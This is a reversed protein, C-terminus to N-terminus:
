HFSHGGFVDVQEGLAITAHAFQQAALAGVQRFHGAHTHGHRAAEGDAGFGAGLIIGIVPGDIRLNFTLNHFIDGLQLFNGALLEAGHGVRQQNGDAGAGPGGHGTHHIGDQVQTEVVLHHLGEGLLGLVGPEGVIGVATKDLHVGVDDHLHALLIKFLEDVLHLLLAADGLIGLQRGLVQLFQGLHELGLVAGLQALLEGLVGLLLKHAGDLGHETGPVVGAGDVVAAHVVNGGGPAGSDVDLLHDEAVHAVGGTGANGKGAVGGGALLLEKTLEQHVGLAFVHHGTDTGGLGDILQLVDHRLDIVLKYVDAVLQLVMVAVHLVHLEGNLVLLEKHELGTVALAGGGGSQFNGAVQHVLAHDGLLFGHGHNVGLAQIGQQVGGEGLFLQLTGFGDALAKGGRGASSGATDDEGGIVHDGPHVLALFDNQDAQLGRRLVDLAHVKGAADQRNAATHGGVGGNHGTTHTGAADGAAAGNLHVFGVPLKLQAALDVFLTVPDGEVAGGAVDVALPEVCGLGLDGALKATDHGPGVLEAGQLDAGIGVGGLVGTLGDVEAGFANTQATGLMHEKIGVANGGDALHDNGVRHLLTLLSQALQLGHLLGVKFSDVLGHLAARDSDAKQIGRQMLENGRVGSIDFGQGLFHLDGHLMQGVDDVGEVLEIGHHAVTAATQVHGEGFDGPHLGGGNDLGRQSDAAATRGPLDLRFDHNGQNTLGTLQGVDLVDNVGRCLLEDLFGAGVHVVLDAGHNLNGTCGEGGVIDGLFGLEEGEAGVVQGLHGEAEGTIVGTLEQGAVVVILNILGIGEGLQVLGTHATQHLHGTLQAALGTGVDLQADAALLAAIGAGHFEAVVHAQGVDGAAGEAHGNGSQSGRLSSNFCGTRHLLLRM